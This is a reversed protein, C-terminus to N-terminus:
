QIMRALVFEEISVMILSPLFHVAQFDLSSCVTLFAREKRSNRLSSERIERASRDNNNSPRSPGLRTVPDDTHRIVFPEDTGQGQQGHAM